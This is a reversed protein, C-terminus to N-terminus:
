RKRNKRSSSSSEQMVVTGNKVDDSADKFKSQSELYFMLDTVQSQLEENQSKLNTQDLELVKIKESLGETIAQEDKWKKEFIKALGKVKETHALKAELTAELAETKANMKNKLDPIVSALQKLQSELRNFNTSIQQNHQAMEQFSAASEALRSEYYDRQSELQSLLVNTYEFAYDRNKEKDKSNDESSSCSNSNGPLEVLKGDSENQLLRHVYNDGAYDWVRQSSIDMAFCHNTSEYHQIAHKSNYRGCGINGCILCIWLNQEGGCVTCKDLGERSMLPNAMLNSYRCVPCTDDKWKSLCNCHFTHQCSITLLGTTESDMRELCVPCTPLEKVISSSELEGNRDNQDRKRVELTFPDELLYPIGAQLNYSSNLPKFIVSKVFIVHCQESEMSNFSRGNFDSQFKRASENNRFKMLVMFRNPNDSKILRFHSVNSTVTTGLFVLLDTPSFYNPVAVIAVTTDDSEVEIDQTTSEYEKYLRVVGYNMFKAKLPENQLNKKMGLNDLCTIEIASFRYDSRETECSVEILKKYKSHGEVEGRGEPQILPKFINEEEIAKSCWSDVDVEIKSSTRTQEPRTFDFFVIYRNKESMFVSAEVDIHLRSEPTVQKLNQTLQTLTKGIEIM